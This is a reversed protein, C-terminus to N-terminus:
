TTRDVGIRSAYRRRPRTREGNPDKRSPRQSLLKRWRIPLRRHYRPTPKATLRLRETLLAEWVCGLGPSNPRCNTRRISGRWPRDRAGELYAVRLAWPSQAACAYNPACFVLATRRSSRDLLISSVM